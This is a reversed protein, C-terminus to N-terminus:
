LAFLDVAGAAPCSNMHEILMATIEGQGSEASLGILEDHDINLAIRSTSLLKGVCEALRLRILSRLVAQANAELMMDSDTLGSDFLAFLTVAATDTYLPVDSALDKFHRFHLCISAYALFKGPDYEKPVPLTVTRGSSPMYCVRLNPCDKVSDSDLQPSISAIKISELRHCSNVGGSHILAFSEPLFLHKLRERDYIANSGIIKIGEPVHYEEEDGSYRFLYDGFCIADGPYEALFPTDRFADPAADKLHAPFIIDTLRSCGAFALDDILDLYKPLTISQLSICGAFAMTGIQKIWKNLVVESLSICEAFVSEPLPSESQVQASTLGSCGRFAGPCLRVKSGTVIEKLKSCNGFADAEIVELEAPLSIQELRYCSSFCSRPIVKINDPLRVQKLSTCAAFAYEGIKRVSDPVYVSKIVRDSYFARQAIETVGEPIHVQSVPESIGTLVNNEIIFNM